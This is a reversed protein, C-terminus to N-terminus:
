MELREKDEKCATGFLQAGGFGHICALRCVLGGVLPVPDDM